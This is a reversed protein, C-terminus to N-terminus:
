IDAPFSVGLDQSIQETPIFRSPSEEESADDNTSESDSGPDGPVESDGASQQSAAVDDTENDPTAEAALLMTSSIGFGLMFIFMQLRRAM